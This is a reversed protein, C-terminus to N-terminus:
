FGLMATLRVSGIFPTVLRFAEAYTVGSEIGRTRSQQRALDIMDGTKPKPPLQSVHCRLMQLKIEIQDSIDVYQDPEFPVFWADSYYLKPRPCAPIEPLACANAVWQVADLTCRSTNIHDTHYDRPPHTIVIEPRHKRIVETLALNATQDAQFIGEPFRLFITEMDLIKAAALSEAERIKTHEPFAKGAIWIGNTMVVSVVRWGAQKHRFLTGAVLENDDHHAGVAMITKSKEM